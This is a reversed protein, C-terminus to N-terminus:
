RKTFSAHKSQVIAAIRGDAVHMQIEQGQEVDQVSRVISGDNKQMFAYGRGLPALPDVAQLQMSLAQLAHHCKEEYRRQAQPLVQELSCFNQEYQTLCRQGAHELRIHLSELTSQLTEVRRQLQPLIAHERELHREKQEICQWIYQKLRQVNTRLLEEKRQWTQVPSLWKLGQEYHVLKQECRQAARQGAEYVAMELSDVTQMLEERSPWLLQAAHTPTAARVDATMDAMSVDVEHGIGALIPVSANYIAEAVMEENFAWLDELSGGGRILVIVEAWEQAVAQQIAKTIAPAAVDGQVPVPFIRIDSGTGMTQAIRLFDHIAAGKPSTIVAVRQPNYPLTKKRESAFYGAALLKAKLAEFAAYLAGRGGEQAHTIILQYSGRPAYVTVHGMCLIEQGNEITQAMSPRPGDEFVEGTLPDFNEVTRQATKFWVCNLLADSDKLSFYVHGSSPRALNSVEGKVWVVPFNKELSGKINATLERVTFITSM